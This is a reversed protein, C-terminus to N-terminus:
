LQKFGPFTTFQNSFIGLVKYIQGMGFDVENESLVLREYAQFLNIQKEENLNELANSLRYQIGLNKLFEGQTIPKLIKNNQHSTKSNYALWDFDVDVSLDVEGPSSLFDFFEHAKIGRLSSKLKRETKGSYGYDIAILAGKNQAIISNLKQILDGGVLSIELIDDEEFTETSELISKSIIRSSVTESNSLVLKLPLNSDKVDLDILLERWEKLEKNFKFQHIPLADFLEQCIIVSPVRSESMDDIHNFHTVPIDFNKLKDEQLTKLRESTEILTIGGKQLAAYFVPFQQATSSIDSILTGKGGGIEIIRFKETSGLQQWVSVCFITLMEGFLSSIEPATVFDGESGFIDNKRKYYGFEPHSLCNEMYEAVTIPGKLRILEQLVPLLSNRDNRISKHLIQNSKQTQNSIIFGNSDIKIEHFGNNTCFRRNVQFIERLRRM